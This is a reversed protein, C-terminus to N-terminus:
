VPGHCGKSRRKQLKQWQTHNSSASSVALLFSHLSQWHLCWEAELRPSFGKYTPLYIYVARPPPIFATPHFWSLLFFVSNVSLFFLLLTFLRQYALREVMQGEKKSRNTPNWVLMLGRPRPGKVPDNNISRGAFEVSNLLIMVNM